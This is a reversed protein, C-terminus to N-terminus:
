DYNWNINYEGFTAPLDENNEEELIKFFKHKIRDGLTDYLWYSIEDEEDPRKKGNIFVGIHTGSIGFGIETIGYRYAEYIVQAYKGTSCLQKSSQKSSHNNSRYLKFDIANGALGNQAHNPSHSVGTRNGSIVKFECGLEEAKYAAQSAAILVNSYMEHRHDGVESIGLIKNKQEVLSPHLEGWLRSNSHIIIPRNDQMFDKSSFDRSGFTKSCGSVNTMLILGVLGKAFKKLM